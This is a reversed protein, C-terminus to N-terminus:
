KDGLHKIAAMLRDRCAIAAEIPTKHTFDSRVEFKAGIPTICVDMSCHWGRDIYMGVRPKGYRALELLVSQLDNTTPTAAQHETHASDPMLARALVGLKM